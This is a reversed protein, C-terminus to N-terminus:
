VPPCFKKSDPSQKCHKLLKGLVLWDQSPTELNNRKM